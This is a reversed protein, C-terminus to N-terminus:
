RRPVPTSAEPAADAAADHRVAPMSGDGRTAGGEPTHEALAGHDTVCGTVAVVVPLTLLLRM